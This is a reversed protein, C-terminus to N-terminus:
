SFSSYIGVLYTAYFLLASSFLILESRSKNDFISLSKFYFVPFIAMFVRECAWSYNAIGLIFVLFLLSLLLHDLFPVEFSFSPLCYILILYLLCIILILPTLNFGIIRSALLTASPIFLLSLISAFGLLITKVFLSYNLYSLSQSVLSLGLFPLTLKHIPLLILLVIYYFIFDRRSRTPPIKVSIYLFIGTVLGQRIVNLSPLIFAWSFLLLCISPIAISLPVPRRKSYESYIAFTSLSLFFSALFSSIVVGYLQLSTFQYAFSDGIYNSYSRYFDTGFGLVGSSCLLAYFLSILTSIKVKM